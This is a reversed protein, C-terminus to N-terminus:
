DAPRVSEIDQVCAGGLSAAEPPDTPHPPMERRFTGVIRVKKGQFRSIEDLPRMHGEHGWPELFPGDETGFKLMVQQAPPHNRARVPLPDWVTYTAVVEVREGDHAICEDMTACTPLQGTMTNAGDACAACGALIISLLVVRM